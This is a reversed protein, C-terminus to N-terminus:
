LWRKKAATWKQDPPPVLSGPDTPEVLNQLTAGLIMKQALIACIAPEEVDKISLASQASCQTCTKAAMTSIRAGCLHNGTGLTRLLPPQLQIVLGGIVIGVSNYASAWDLKRMLVTLMVSSANFTTLRVVTM